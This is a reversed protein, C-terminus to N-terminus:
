LSTRSVSYIDSYCYSLFIVPIIDRHDRGLQFWRPWPKWGPWPPLPIWFTSALDCPFVCCGHGTFWPWLDLVCTSVDISTMPSSMWTDLNGAPYWGPWWSSSTWVVGSTTILHFTSLCLLGRLSSRITYPCLLRRHNVDVDIQLFLLLSVFIWSWPGYRPHVQIYINMIYMVERVKLLIWTM